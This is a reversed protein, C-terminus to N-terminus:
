YQDEKFKTRATGQIEYTTEPDDGFVVKMYISDTPNGSKSHGALPLIKGDTVTIGIDYGDIQNVSNETGFTLTSYDLKCKFKFDWINGDEDDFWLSDSTPTSTNYTHIAYPHSYLPAGDLFLNVWWDNSAKVTATAGPEYDKQCSGMVVVATLLVISLKFLKM